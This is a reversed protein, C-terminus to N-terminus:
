SLDFTARPRGMLSAHTRLMSEYLMRALGCSLNLPAENPSTERTFNRVPSVVPPPSATPRQFNTSQQLAALMLHPQIQRRLAVLMDDCEESGSNGGSNNGSSGAESTHTSAPPLTNNKGAKTRKDGRPRRRRTHITDRRMTAPRNINHLKFYLGCANCVMEGLPNRRWITTTRTGCNSCQLDMRKALSPQRPTGSSNTKFITTGCWAQANDDLDVEEIDEDTNIIPSERQAAARRETYSAAELLRSINNQSQPQPEPEPELELEPEPELPTITVSGKGNLSGNHVTHPQSHSRFALETARLPCSQKRRGRASRSEGNSTSNYHALFNTRNALIDNDTGYRGSHPAGSMLSRLLSNAESKPCSTPSSSHEPENKIESHSTEEYHSDDDSMDDQEQKVESPMYNEEEAIRLQGEDDSDSDSYGNLMETSREEEDEEMPEERRKETKFDCESKIDRDPKIEQERDARSSTGASESKLPPNSLVEMCNLYEQLSVLADSSGYDSNALYRKLIMESKRSAERFEYMMDLKFTCHQCIMTPLMDHESVLISLCTMIKLPYNKQTSADDFISLRVGSASLCLRCLKYFKSPIESM